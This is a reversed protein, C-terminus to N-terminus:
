LIAAHVLNAVQDLRKSHWPDPIRNNTIYAFSVGSDPDGWCYSTGVGGHGFARPSAFGGLGRVNDTTGRLHPGLGRHMPMGMFEDVRDGTHNRIAYQLLRPSVIRRGALEGGNLMMQYLAVMARATAYGGAGPAGSKRWAASNNDALPRSGGGAPLPEHMDAARGFESEPLGVYLERGLGLKDCVTERIVDRFDKGTLAEILVGLTWHASQGHYHVKSGPSWELPFDCVVERLRKHDAWADPGVVANPYGAQHTIVQLVTINGKANKAFEPVHDAIRDSFSFLGREALTWLAVATVVKTNSYLLWLTDDAAARPKPETAAKGFSKFLGLKGHRALAIQCGPYHGEAIHREILATLRDIQELRFGLSGLDAPPLPFGTAPQTHITTDM